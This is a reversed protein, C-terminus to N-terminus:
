TNTRSVTKKGEEIQKLGKALQKLEKQDKRQLKLLDDITGTGSAKFSKWQKAVSHPEYNTKSKASFKDWLEFPAGLAKLAMGVNIWYNYDTYRREDLSDLISWIEDNSSRLNTSQITCPVPVPINSANIVNDTEINDHLGSSEMSSPVPLSM